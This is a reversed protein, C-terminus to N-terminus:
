KKQRKIDDLDRDDYRRDACAKLYEEQAANVSDAQANYADVKGKYADLTADREAVRANHAGVADASTRDLTALADALATGNRELEAKEGALAAKARGAAEVRAQVGAKRDVCEKLQDPTLIKDGASKPAANKAARTAGQSVGVALLVAIAVALSRSAHGLQPRM